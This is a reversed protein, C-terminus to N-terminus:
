KRLRRAEARPLLPVDYIDIWERGALLRAPGSAIGGAKYVTESAPTGRPVVVVMHGTARDGSRIATTELGPDGFREYYYYHTPAAAYRDILIHEHPPTYKKILAVIDNDTVPPVDTSRLGTSILAIALTAAAIALTAAAIAPAAAGARRTAWALGASAQILYLPLVFLWSRVFPAIPGLLIVGLLVAASAAALRRDVFVSAVFGAAIIWDLPHPAARNWNAFVDGALGTIPDWGRALPTVADWGTQGLVAAYLLLSLAATAALTVALRLLIRRDKLVMWLAVIAIGIAMTPLTYVALV